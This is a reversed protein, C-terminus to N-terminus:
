KGDKEGLELERNKLIEEKMKEEEKAEEKIEVIREHISAMMEKTLPYYHMSVLNIIWGIIPAGVLCIMTVNFIDQSYPTIYTPLTEKFGIGSLLLAIFLTAFSSVIKDILSFLTGMLGPVYRGSRYVEYDACDATMPIVISISLSGFGQMIIFLALFGITYLNISQFSIQTPDGFYLLAFLAVAGIIGGYTGILLAKKQGMNRAVFMILYLSVFVGLVGSIATFASYTSYNGIVIGFLMVMVVANRQMTMTLKDTCAALCLLKIPHNNKLVSFCDALTATQVKSKGYFEKRDKRWLGIVAFIAFIISPILCVIWLEIFFTPNSFADLVINGAMDYTNYKPVLVSTVYVPVLISIIGNYASDFASFMPRQEADNTLCIQASKTVVCQSTYGMIFFMYCIIYFPMCIAESLRPCVLFILATGVIMFLQGFIIFPRNKGYEGDTKDLIFGVFPDTVGDWIRLTTAIMGAAVVGVGVIGSLFYMVYMFLMQYMNTSTNNLAYFAIEWTKARHIGTKPEYLPKREKTM